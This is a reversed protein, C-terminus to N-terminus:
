WKTIVEFDGGFKQELKGAIYNAFEPCDPDAEEVWIRWIKNTYDYLVDICRLDEWNIAKNFDKPNITKIVDNCFRMIEQYEIKNNM